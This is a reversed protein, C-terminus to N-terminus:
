KKEFSIIKNYIFVFSVIDECKGSIQLVIIDTQMVQFIVLIKYFLYM